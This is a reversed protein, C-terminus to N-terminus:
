IITDLKLNLKYDTNSISKAIHYLIYLSYNLCNWGMGWGSSRQQILKSVQFSVNPTITIQNVMYIRNQIFQREKTWNLETAWDHGVTQSGMSQLMGPEGTWWWSGSDVWVWTWQTPSAMWGHWGSDDGEGGVKLRKWCWPRKLHTLM